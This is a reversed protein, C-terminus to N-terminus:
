VLALIQRGVTDNSSSRLRYGGCDDLVGREALWRIAREVLREAVRQTDGVMCRMRYVIIAMTLPTSETKMVKLVGAVGQVVSKTQNPLHAQLAEALTRPAPIEPRPLAIIAVAEKFAPAAIPPAAAPTHRPKFGRTLHKEQRLLNGAVTRFNKKRGNKRWCDLVAEFQPHALMALANAPSRLDDALLARHQLLEVFVVQAERPQALFVRVTSLAVELPVGQSRFAHAAHAAEKANQKGDPMLCWCGFAVPWWTTATAAGHGHFFRAKRDHLMHEGKWIQFAFFNPNMECCSTLVIDAMAAVRALDNSRGGMDLVLFATVDIGDHSSHRTAMQFFTTLADIVEAMARIGFLPPAVDIEQMSFGKGAARYASQASFYEWVKM